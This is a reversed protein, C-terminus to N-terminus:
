CCSGSGSCCRISLRRWGRLWVVPNREAGLIFMPEVPIQDIGWRTGLDGPGHGIGLLGLVMGSQGANIEPKCTAWDKVEIQLEGISFQAIPWSDTWADKTLRRLYGPGAELRTDGGLQLTSWPWFGLEARSWCSNVVAV